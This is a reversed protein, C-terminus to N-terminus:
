SNTGERSRRCAGACLRKVGATVFHTATSAAHSRMACSRNGPRRQPRALSRSSAGSSFGGSGFFQGPVMSADHLLCRRM